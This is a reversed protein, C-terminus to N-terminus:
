GDKKLEAGYGRMIRIIEDCCKRGLNRVRMLEEFTMGKLDDLTNIGSRKLCNYSRVSLGKDAMDELTVVDESEVPKMAEGIEEEPVGGARMMERLKNKLIVNELRVKDREEAIEWAKDLTDKMWKKFHRPHRLKRLARAEIQRIRERTVNFKKATQELNYGYRFRMEIVKQERETLSKLSEVLAPVYVKHLMCMEEDTLASNDGCSYYPITGKMVAIVLNYPYFASIDMDLSFAPLGEVGETLDGASCRLVEAYKLLFNTGMKGTNIHKYVSTVTEDMQRALDGKTMGRAKRIEDINKGIKETDMM